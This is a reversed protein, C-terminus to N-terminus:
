RATGQLRLPVGKYKQSGDFEIECARLVGAKALRQLTRRHAANVNGHAPFIEYVSVWRGDGKPSTHASWHSDGSNHRMFDQFLNLTRVQAESLGHGAISSMHAASM